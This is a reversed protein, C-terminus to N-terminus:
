FIVGGAELEAIHVDTMGLLEAYVDRNHQGMLPAPGYVTAGDAFVWPLRLDCRDGQVPHRYRVWAGRDALHADSFLQDARMSPAAAVGAAQCAEAAPESDRGATWAEIVADLEEENAKRDALTTFRHDTALEPRGMVACLAVWEADTRVAVALWDDTHYCRYCGNPAFGDVRNGNRTAVTGTFLADLLPTGLMCTVAEAASVDVHQGVGHAARDLLAGLAGLAAFCGVVSDMRGVFFMPPDDPYGTLDQLGGAAAFIDAYARYGEEPGGRGFGSVSVLVIDSRWRSLTDYGIGFREITGPVFSEVVVDCVGILQRVV